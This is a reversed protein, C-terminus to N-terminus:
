VIVDNFKSWSSDNEVNGEPYSYDINSNIYWIGSSKVIIGGIYQDGLEKIKINLSKAKDKTDTSKATADSKTDFIGIKGNKFKIIWDPYFLSFGNKDTDTYKIAYFAKGYDGNKFWWNVEDLSDIYEMFSQENKKGKFDEKKLYYKDLACKNQPVEEFDETYSYEEQITFIPAEKEEHKEKKDEIIQTAIPKFNILAMTIAPRFKSKANNLIDNIFVRYIYDTDESLYKRFWIRIASKLTSWSRAINTYKADENEQEQLLQYCLFNFTKEVDNVSMEIDIDKGENHFEYNLHDYDDYEANVIIKNSVHGSLDVGSKKLKSRSTALLDDNNIGFYENMSKIFSKQFKFSKPIDGYNIRSIYESKLQINDLNPKIHAFNVFPKNTASADPIQVENRKYNTYLYGIRLLEHDKYDEKLQPEPMRLIRGVTQTYFKDSRIERFMVLVSARPCDWGTGAAQKFLMFDVESNNDTILEMNEQRGDFWKAIKNDPIGVEKLYDLVVSEKTEKSMEILKSDDNPLQILMLPNIDKGLNDLEEKILLRRELGLQLLAKDLDQGEHKKLDEETQVVIKEKILGEDVVAQRDVEVMTKHRFAELEDDQDPTATVHVMVKPNIYEIVEQALHTSKNKHAEDIILIIERNDAHTNDIFDEWYVGSEKRLIEEDPRRLIRTDASKSVIKQWNLFVIDNKNLKKRTIDSVTLLNNELNNEYYEAIKNKSQMALDDSFTIWIFAKDEQWQPLHNLNRIFNSVMYTKGSGTPSKFVVPVQRQDKKWAVLFAETLNDIANKQFELVNINKM